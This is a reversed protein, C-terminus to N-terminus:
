CDGRSLLKCWGLGVFGIILFYEFPFLHRSKHFLQLLELHAFM